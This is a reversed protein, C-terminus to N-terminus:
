ARGCAIIQTRMCVYMATYLKSQIISDKAQERGLKEESVVQWGECLFPCVVRKPCPTEKRLSIALGLFICESIVTISQVLECRVRGRPRHVARGERREEGLRAESPPEKNEM